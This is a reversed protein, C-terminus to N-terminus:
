AVIEVPIGDPDRLYMFMAPHDPDDVHQMPLLVDLQQAEIESVLMQPDAARLCVQLYGFDGWQTGFPISRGRPKTVEFLELMGGGESKSILCSRVTAGKVGAVEDILGSFSEHPPIVTEDFGLVEGYFDLSRDLDTVAIGLSRLTIGPGSVIEILNGEPDHGYAFRCEGGNGLFATKPASALDLFASRDTCFAAVDPVAFTVKAVGIDGYRHDKRIPRPRTRDGRLVAVTLEGHEHGLLMASHIARPARLLGHMAPHDEEPMEALVREYGFVEAYFARVHETDRWASAWM